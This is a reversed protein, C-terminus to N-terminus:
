SCTGGESGGRKQRSKPTCRVTEVELDTEGESKVAQVLALESQTGQVVEATPQVKVELLGPGVQEFVGEGLNGILLEGGKMQLGAFEAHVGGWDGAIDAREGTEVQQDFDNPPDVAHEGFRVAGREGFEQSGVKLAMGMLLDVPDFAFVAGGMHLAQAFHHEVQPFAEGGGVVLVGGVTQELADEGFVEHRSRRFGQAQLGAGFQPRVAQLGGIFGSAM